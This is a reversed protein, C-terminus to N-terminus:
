CTSRLAGNQDAGEQQAIIDLPHQHRRLVEIEDVESVTRAIEILQWNDRDSCVDGFRLHVGVAKDGCDGTVECHYKLWRRREPQEAIFVLLVNAPLKISDDRTWRNLESKRRQEL